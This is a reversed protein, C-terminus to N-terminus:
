VVGKEAVVGGEKKPWGSVNDCGRGEAVVGWGREEVM